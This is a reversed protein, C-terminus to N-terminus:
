RRELLETRLEKFEGRLEARWEVFQQQSLEFYRDMRAFGASMTDSLATIAARTETEMGHLYGARRPAEV